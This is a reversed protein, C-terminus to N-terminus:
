AGFAFLKGIRHVAFHEVIYHRFYKCEDKSGIPGGANPLYSLYSNLAVGILHSLQSM